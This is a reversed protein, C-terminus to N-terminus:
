PAGPASIPRPPSPQAEVSEVSERFSRMLDQSIKWGLWFYSEVLFVIVTLGIAIARVWREGSHRSSPAATPLPAGPPNLM